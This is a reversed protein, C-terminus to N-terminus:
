LLIMAFFLFFFDDPGMNLIIDHSAAEVGLNYKEYLDTQDTLRIYRINFKDRHEQKPLLSDVDKGEDSDDVIIWELLHRPYSTSTYNLVAIKFIDPLNHVPTVISM